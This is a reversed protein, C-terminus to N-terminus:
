TFSINILGIEPNINASLTTNKYFFGALSVSDREKTKVEQQTLANLLLASCAM